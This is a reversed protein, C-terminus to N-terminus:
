QTTHIHSKVHTQVMDRAQSSINRINHDTRESSVTGRGFRFVDKLQFRRLPKTPRTKKKLPERM